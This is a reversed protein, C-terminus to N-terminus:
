DDRRPRATFYLHGLSEKSKTTFLLNDRQLPELTKFCTFLEHCAIPYQGGFFQFGGLRLMGWDLFKKSGRGGGEGLTKGGGGGGGGGGRVM